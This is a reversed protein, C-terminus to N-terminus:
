FGMEKISYAPSKGKFRNRLGRRESTLYDRRFENEKGYLTFNWHSPYSRRFPIEIEVSYGYGFHGVETIGKSQLFEHYKVHDYFFTQTRDTRINLDAETISETGDLIFELCEKYARSRMM